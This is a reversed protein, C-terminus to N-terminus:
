KPLVCDCHSGVSAYGIGDPLMLDLANFNNWLDYIFGPRAMNNALLNIQMKEFEIHNNLIICLNSKSFAEDLTECPQVGFEAIESDAVVPDYGRFDADPFKSKLQEFIPLATTGRLDDTAPRGKFAIGMLTIIINSSFSFTETIHQIYNTVNVMLQENAHRAARIIEADSDIESLGELMIYPDKSLCPGGVPGPNFLNTRPYGLKGASIVEAASVGTLDCIRAVENSFGFLVDRQINDILKIMEATEISNVRVVTPTLFQFIQAARVSTKNDQGGVIQPLRRLEQLAQGEITREPCFAVGFSKGSSQLIPVVLNQTVGLKVTSRMIVLSDQKMHNAVQQAANQIMDLRVQGDDNLPTGVTIIFTSASNDAPVEDTIELRGLNIVRMLLENINPEHFHSKGNRLLEVVDKRKEVGIVHFGVEAMTVALTLGVYGLGIICVNKDTHSDPLQSM